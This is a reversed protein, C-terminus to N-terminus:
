GGTLRQGRRRRVLVFVVLASMMLGNSIRSGFVRLASAEAEALGGAPVLTIPASTQPGQLWQVKDSDHGSKITLQYAGFIFTSRWTFERSESSASATFHIAAQATDDVTIDRLTLDLPAGNVRADIHAQLTPILSELAERRAAMTAPITGPIGALAELKAILADAEAEITVEILGARTEVISVTTTALAHAHSSAAFSLLALVIAARQLTRM